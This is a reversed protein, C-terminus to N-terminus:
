DNLKKGTWLFFIGLGYGISVITILTGKIFLIFALYADPDDDPVFILLSTYIMEPFGYLLNYAGDVLKIVKGIYIADLLIDKINADESTTSPLSVNGGLGVVFQNQGQTQDAIPQIISVYEPNMDPLAMIIIGTAVNLMFAFIIIKFMLKM